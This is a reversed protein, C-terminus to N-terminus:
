NKLRNLLGDNSDIAVENMAIQLQIQSTREAETLGALSGDKINRLLANSGKIRRNAVWLEETLTAILEHASDLKFKRPNEEYYSKIKQMNAIAEIAHPDTLGSDAALRINSM